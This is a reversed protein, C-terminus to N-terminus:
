QKQQIMAEGAMIMMIMMMWFGEYVAVLLENVRGCPQRM